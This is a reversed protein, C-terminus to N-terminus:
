KELSFGVIKKFFLMTNVGNWQQQTNQLKIETAPPSVM